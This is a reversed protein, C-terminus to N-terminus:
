RTEDGQPIANNPPRMLSSRVPEDDLQYNSLRVGCDKTILILNHHFAISGITPELSFQETPPTLFECQNVSDVLNRFFTMCSGQYARSGVSGGGYLPWYSTQVDEIVYSGGDKVFPWLIGFSQIQDSNSHSGDDIVFDFPGCEAAIQTLRHRDTQSCQLAKVRGRSIATKDEIDIAYIRGRRFYAAWMLLSEGGRAFSYGGVGLELLSISKGRFREMLAAYVPTYEHVGFKDTGALAALLDLNLRLLGALPLFARFVRDTRAARSDKEYHQNAAPPAGARLRRNVIL